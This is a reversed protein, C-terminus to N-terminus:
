IKHPESGRSYLICLAWVTVLLQMNYAAILLILLYKASLIGVCMRVYISSFAVYM